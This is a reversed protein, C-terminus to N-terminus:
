KKRGIRSKYHSKPSRPTVGNSISARNGFNERMKISCHHCEKREFSADNKSINLFETIGVDQRRRHAEDSRKVEV